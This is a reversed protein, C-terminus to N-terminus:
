KAFYCGLAFVDHYKQADEYQTIYASRSVILAEWHESLLTEICVFLTHQDDAHLLLLAAYTDSQKITQLEPELLSQIIVM